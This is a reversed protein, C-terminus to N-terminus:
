TSAAAIATALADLSAPKAVHRMFGAARAREVDEPRTHGSLAVLYAGRLEPDEGFARAVEYGDMGPLGIDCLVVQPAFERAAEIGAQGSAATRVELGLWSM